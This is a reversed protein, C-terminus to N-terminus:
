SGDGSPPDLTEQKIWTTHFEPDFNSDESHDALQPSDSRARRQALSTCRNVDWDTCCSQSRKKEASSSRGADDDEEEEDGDNAEEDGLHCSSPDTELEPDSGSVNLHSDAMLPRLNSSSFTVTTPAIASPIFGPRQLSLNLPENSPPPPLLPRESAAAAAAAEEPLPVIPELAPPVSRCAQCHTEGTSSDVLRLCDYARYRYDPLTFYNFSALAQEQASKPHFDQVRKLM